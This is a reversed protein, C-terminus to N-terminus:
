GTLKPNIFKLGSDLMQLYDESPILVPIEKDGLKLATNLRHIGNEIRIKGSRQHWTLMPPDIPLGAEWRILIGYIKQANLPRSFFSTSEFFPLYMPDLLAFIDDLQVSEILQFRMRDDEDWCKDYPSYIKPNPIDWIPKLAITQKEVLETGWEEHDIMSEDDNYVVNSGLSDFRGSLRSLEFALCIKFM